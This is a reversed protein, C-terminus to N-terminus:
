TELGPMPLQNLVKLFFEKDKAHTLLGAVKSREVWRAEPNRADRPRLRTQATRFLFLTIRKIRSADSGGHRGIRPREYTGLRRVFRLDKVGSEEYIERRAAAVPGEGADVHGKPLSWSNGNQNVVLVRGAPDVVVGGASESVRVAPGRTKAM